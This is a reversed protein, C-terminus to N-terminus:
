SASWSRLVRGRTSVVNPGRHTGAGHGSVTLGPAACPGEKPGSRAHVHVGVHVCRSVFPRAVPDVVDSFGSIDLFLVACKLRRGTGYVLDEEDPVVRGPVAVQDRESIAARAKEVRGVQELWHLM